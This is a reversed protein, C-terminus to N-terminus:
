GELLLDEVIDARAAFDTQAAFGIAKLGVAFARVDPSRDPIAGTVNLFVQVVGREGATGSLRVRHTSISSRLQVIKRAAGGDRASRARHMPELGVLVKNAECQPAGRLELYVVIAAGAPLGTRFRLSAESGRLWCGFDEIEYWGDQLILCTPNAFYDAPLPRGFALDAPRFIQGARLVPDVDGPSPGARRLATLRAIFEAGVQPWRRAVFNTRVDRGRRERYDADFTMRRLVEIGDRLNFPDIYDVLDGGVEPISSTNSAVCPKGYALSEGVPLGWGEVFSPFATFLCERYLTELEGDSIDHVIHVRGGLYQTAELQEMLATVRWGKRGVFVLDPPDLGEDLFHKWAAVLYAHNKRGEITSVSLVFPAGRLKAINPGWGAAPDGNSPHDLLVHALPVAEVPTAPLNYRDRFRRVERATNESITLIFDFITLGDGMSRTFDHSLEADCFEPHTVPILDYLFVGLIVYCQGAAPTVPRAHAFAVDVLDILRDHDVLPGAAYDIVERLKRRDLSLFEKPSAAHVVFHYEAGGQAVCDMVYCAIGAQVRQIGSLTKHAKFYRFLDDIEIFVRDKAPVIAAMEAPADPAPAGAPRFAEGDGPSTSVAQEALLLAEANEDSM